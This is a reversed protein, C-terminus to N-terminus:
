VAEMGQAQPSIAGIDDIGPRWAKFDKFSTTHNEFLGYFTDWVHATCAGTDVNDIKGIIHAYRMQGHGQLLGACKLQFATGPQTIPLVAVQGTPCHLRLETIKRVDGSEVLSHMWDAGDREFM